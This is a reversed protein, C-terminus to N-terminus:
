APVDQDAFVIRGSAHTGQTSRYNFHLTATEAKWGLDLQLQTEPRVLQQFKLAEMRLFPASIGFADRGWAIAWDILAVGPLIPTDPFHGDFVALDGTVTLQLKAGSASRENWEPVPQSARFLDALLKMTTKGQADGPLVEVFRWLKPVAIPDVQPHLVGRLHDILSKRGASSLLAHGAASLVVAAVIRDRTGALVLARAENVLGDALLAREITDLSIRREELKVLRDSRGLLEFGEGVMRARDETRSWHTEALHRSRVLLTSEDVKCEVGPLPQWTRDGSYRTAIGGTETSGFVEIVRQDWLRDIALGAEGPLPGGSSFVARLASRTLSWDVSEPLRKLLAPSSVLVIPQSGPLAAIQEPYVLRHMAFPRRAALPWLVRFLLGYIHQHSVTGQVHAHGLLTGFRSELTAIESDLHRLCKGIAVPDGSSGSTFLVLRVTEPDLDGWVIEPSPLTSDPQLGNAFTGAFGDVQTALAELTSRLIDAPLYVIKEAHWAGLLAAAFEFSDELHLAYRRGPAVAFAAHWARARRLLEGSTATSEPDATLPREADLGLRRVLGTLAVIEVM